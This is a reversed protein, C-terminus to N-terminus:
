RATRTRTRVDLTGSSAHLAASPRERATASSDCGQAGSSTDTQGAAAALAHLTRSLHCCIPLNNNGLWGLLPGPQQLVCRHGCCCLLLCRGIVCWCVHLGCVWTGWSVSCSSAQSHALCPLGALLLDCGHEPEPSNGAARAYVRVTHADCVQQPRATPRQGLQQGQLRCCPQQRGACCDFPQLTHAGPQLALLRQQCPCTSICVLNQRLQRCTDFVETSSCLRRRLCM